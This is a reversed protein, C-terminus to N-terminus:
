VRLMNSLRHKFICNCWHWQWKTPVNNFIKIKGELWGNLDYMILIFLKYAYINYYHNFIVAFAISTSLVYSLPGPKLSIITCFVDYFYLKDYHLFVFLSFCVIIFCFDNSKNKYSNHNTQKYLLMYSVSNNCSQKSKYKMFCLYINKDIFVVNTFKKLLCYM